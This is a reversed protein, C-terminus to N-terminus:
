LMMKVGDNVRSRDAHKRVEFATKELAFNGGVDHEVQDIIRQLRSQDPAGPFLLFRNNGADFHKDLLGHPLELNPGALGSRAASQAPRDRPLEFASRARRRSM